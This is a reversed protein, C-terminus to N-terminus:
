EAAPEDELEPHEFDELMEAVQEAHTQARSEALESDQDRIADLIGQHRASLWHLDIGEASATIYTRGFPELMSWLRKLTRNGAADLIREHFQTNKVAHDHADDRAAAEEMASLLEELDRVCRESRRAAALRAALGELEARVEVAEILEEKSPKRVWSGRYPQTDIFGLSALDRLAERVPAQSTGLQRALRTEVLRSGPPLDGQLIWTLIRDKVQTSLVEREVPEHVPDPSETV